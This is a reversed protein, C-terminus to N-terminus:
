IQTRLPLATVLTALVQSGVGNSNNTAIFYTQVLEIFVANLVSKEEFLQNKCKQVLFRSTICFEELTDNLKLGNFHM